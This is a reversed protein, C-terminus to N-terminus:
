PDARSRQCGAEPLPGEIGSTPVRQDAGPGAPLQSLVDIAQAGVRRSHRCGAAPGNVAPAPLERAALSDIFGVNREEAREAGSPVVGLVAGEEGPAAGM